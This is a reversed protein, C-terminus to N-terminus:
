YGVAFVDVVGAVPTGSADITQVDIYARDKFEIVANVPAGPAFSNDQVTLNVAKLVRFTNIPFTIRTGTAAVAVDEGQWNVDPYDLVFDVDSVEGRTTGDLSIMDLRAQYTGVELVENPAYPHWGEAGTDSGPGYMPENLGGAYEALIDDAGDTVIFESDDTIILGDVPLLYFPDTLPTPYMLDNGSALKRIFWRYTANAQTYIVLQASAYSVGFTATYSSLASADDQRLLFGSIGEYFEDDYPLTYMPDTYPTNYILGSDIGFRTFNDVDGPFDQDRLDIRDVVNTPLPDGINVTVVAYDDSEWGTQDVSKIMVCWTGYDFLNTEFWTQDGPIGDSFLSYSQGWDPTTGQRYRIDYVSIDTIEGTPWKFVTTDVEPLEWSFRKQGVRSQASGEYVVRFEIPSPPVIEDRAITDTTFTDGFLGQIATTLRIRATWNQDSHFAIAFYDQIGFEGITYFGDADPERLGNNEPFELAREPQASLEVGTVYPPLPVNINWTFLQSGTSQNLHSLVANRATGDNFTGALDPMPFWVTIDDVDAEVWPSEANLRGIACVRVRYRDGSVFQNIPIQERTDEQRAVERWVDSFNITGDDQLEGSQYQLRYGKVSIDFGNLVTNTSAPRWAVDIKAQGNDWIIQATTITPADPNVIQFLYDENDNLPTDFDVANYIDERYRLASIAYVGGDQEDVTLVRFEQPSWDPTDIMWPFTVVPPAVPPDPQAVLVVTDGNLSAIQREQIVPQGEDDAVMYSFTSGGWGAAPTPPTGDLQINNGSVTRIRGGYRRGGKNPDVISIIDGPRIAAGIENVSFTVTDDLLSESLLAWQAARLAQGRSTVGMLRLDLPRYGFRDLAPEDAVYEVHPQYNDLPDDWSALVVTHRARQAAGAYVFNGASVKGSDDFQEITNAENFTYVSPKNRDQVAVITGSAYYLMGRFISSLQTLVNWAEASTQLILNCTFRPETDGAANAPVEQDCYQAIEYLVWRDILQDDVYEGLGYRDNVILDRLVWAPNNSYARQFTGDWDGDYTRAVPDYNSPVEILLGQLEISVQPLSTYQDARLGVTLISSQPYNLRQNLSLVVTSFNFASTEQAGPDASRREVQIRWPGPGELEFEYEKQFQGSFKGSVNGDFATRNVGNSDTYIIRIDVNTGLVDGQNTTRVLGQFTLLVRAIYTGVPDPASVSQAVPLGNRVLTDVSTVNSVRVYGPVGSQGDGAPVSGAAPRGWSFVLDEPQPSVVDGIRVPTDDLFVSRELADVTNGGVPGQIEGECLLFQLQAFSTSQLGPNDPTYTPNYVPAQVQVTQQVNVVQNGGGGGGGGGAGYIRKGKRKAM